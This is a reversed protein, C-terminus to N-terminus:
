IFLAFLIRHNWNFCNVETKHEGSGFLDNVYTSKAFILM